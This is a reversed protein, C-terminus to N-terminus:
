QLGVGKVNEIGYLYDTGDGGGARGTALNVSVASSATEYVAWDSGPGGDITDNGALGQLSNAAADGVLTDGYASGRVNEIGTLADTGHGGTATGLALNVTVAAPATDYLAWDSGPGGDIADNGGGGTLNDDGDGGCIKDSGDGGNVTDNGGLAVIVDNGATGTLTDASDTGLITPNAGYCLPAVTVKFSDSGVGMDGDNVTVTVTFIGYTSYTHSLTFQKDALALPAAAPGDGWIVTATWTDNGPDTFSGPQSLVGSPGPAQDGIDAVVPAVNYARVLVTDCAEAEGDDKVCVRVDYTGDGEDAWTHSLTFTKDSLALTETSSPYNWDVTATWSTSDDDTFSGAQTWISGENVAGDAGANVVPAARPSLRAAGTVGEPDNLGAAAARVGTVTLLAVVLIMLARRM